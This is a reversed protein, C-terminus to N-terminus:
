EPKLENAAEAPGGKAEGAIHSIVREVVREQPELGDAPITVLVGFLHTIIPEQRRDGIKQTINTINWVEM